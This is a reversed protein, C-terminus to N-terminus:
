ALLKGPSDPWCHILFGKLLRCTEEESCMIKGGETRRCSGFPRRDPRHCFGFPLFHRITLPLKFDLCIRKQIAHYSSQDEDLHRQSLAFARALIDLARKSLLRSKRGSKSRRM